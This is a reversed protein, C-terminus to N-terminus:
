LIMEKTEVGTKFAKIEAKDSPVSKLKFELASLLIIDKLNRAFLTTLLRDKDGIADELNEDFDIAGLYPIDFGNIQGKISPSKAIRMNEILGIIPLKLEKLLLVMKKVTELAVKSPTTLVLFEANRILRITDLISDGIGPPLDVILFDLSSWRTVALLEIFANSIDVERLPSPNDEAYYIISMFKIGYIEPPVIGKEENPYIGRIGLIVNTSPGCFDLDLLGVKYNLESLILALTSAVMSKGIGGKGGSVVIVRNIENLRRDIVGLRPDM